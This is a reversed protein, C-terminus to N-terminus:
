FHIMYQKKIMNKIRIQLYQQLALHYLITFLISTIDKTRNLKKKFLSEVIKPLNINPDKSQNIIKNVRKNWFKNIQSLMKLLLRISSFISFPIWILINPLLKIKKLISSKIPLNSFYVKQNSKIIKKQYRLYVKTLM